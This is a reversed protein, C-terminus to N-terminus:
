KAPWPGASSIVPAAISASPRKASIASWKWM